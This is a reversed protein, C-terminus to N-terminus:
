AACRQYEHFDAFHALFWSRVYCYANGRMAAFQRVQHFEDLLADNGSILIYQEMADYTLGRYRGGRGVCTKRVITMTPFDARIKKLFEYEESGPRNAAREFSRTITMTNTAFDIKYTNTTM